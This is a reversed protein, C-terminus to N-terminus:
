GLFHRRAYEAAGLLATLDNLIVRVPITELLSRFRGKDLFGEIFAGEKLKDLVHPAIGGGIYVGGRALFKLALNGAEAGYLSLFLDLARACGPDRNQHGWESVIQALDRNKMEQKLESSETERRTHILFEYIKKLGPGSVVREYSVHGPYTKNLYLLLDIELANRPAFDVHGGECAFPHHDEGDWYLGAEGLGTGAAILAINGKQTADGAHLLYLDEAKLVRIGWANAELDNILHVSDLQLEGALESSDVIWPLNTAQCKGNRVPGAIGFCASSVSAPHMGLFKQLIPLLQTYERSSFIEQAAINLKTKGEFLALRTHTGGIDGALIM